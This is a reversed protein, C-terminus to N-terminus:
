RHAHRQGALARGLDRLLANMALQPNINFQVLKAAADVARLAAPIGAGGDPLRGAHRRLWDLGDVNVVLDEAGGAIAALDRLWFTIQELLAAFVGRAGAPAQAHAALLRAAPEGAMAADLLARADRRLAELPGADDADTSFALARGISGQALRAIVRAREASLARHRQLFDSVDPEPLPRMRVPLMRSRLTPLLAEADAATLIVTTDPPPEELLKLLANAAEPSAEQPVLGEADGVIFVKHSGMAPRAAAVRRLVQVHALYIGTTDASGTAYLPSARRAALEE